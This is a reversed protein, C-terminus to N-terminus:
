EDLTVEGSFRKTIFAQSTYGTTVILDGNLAKTIIVTEDIRASQAALYSFNVTQGNLVYLGTDSHILRDFLFSVSQGSLAFMGGAASILAPAAGPTLVISQGNLLFSGLGANLSHAFRLGLPQGNLLFSGQSASILIGRHLAVSQGSLSFIGQAM